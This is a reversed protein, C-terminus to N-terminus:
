GEKKQEIRLRALQHGLKSNDHLNPLTVAKGEGVTAMNPTDARLIESGCAWDKEGFRALDNVFASLPYEAFAKGGVRKAFEPSQANRVLAVCAHLRHIAVWGDRSKDLTSALHMAAKLTAFFASRDFPTNLSKALAQIRAFVEEGSAAEFKDASVSGVKLLVEKGHYHVACAGVHDYEQFRKFPVAAKAAADLLAERRKALTLDVRQKCTQQEAHLESHLSPLDLLHFSAIAEDLCELAAIDSLPKKPADLRKLAGTLKLLPKLHKKADM